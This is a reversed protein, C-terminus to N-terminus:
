IGKLKTWSIYDQGVNCGRLPCKDGSLLVLHDDVV